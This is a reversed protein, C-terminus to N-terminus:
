RNLYIPLHYGEAGGDGDWNEGFSRRCCRKCNTTCLTQLIVGNDMSNGEMDRQYCNCEHPKGSGFEKEDGFPTQKYKLNESRNYLGTYDM